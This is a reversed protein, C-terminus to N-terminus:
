GPDPTEEPAQVPPLRGFVEQHLTRYDDWTDLDRAIFPSDVAVRRVQDRYNELLGRLGRQPDLRLLIERFSLDVLVPHGGRGDFEPILIKGGSEWTQYLSEVVSPAIAPHDAPMIFVAQHHSDLARIGCAISDAMESEPDPNFSLQVPRGELGKKIEDSRHGVVVVITEMGALIFTDVCSEIVTKNGFPLLPKFYGMRKSQGAALIVVSLLDKTKLSPRQDKTKPRQFDKASQTAKNV